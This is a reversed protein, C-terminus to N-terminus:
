LSSLSASIIMLNYKFVSYQRLVSFTQQQLRKMSNKHEFPNKTQNHNGRAIHTTVMADLHQHRINKVKSVIRNNCATHFICSFCLFCQPISFFCHFNNPKAQRGTVHTPEWVMHSENIKAKYGLNTWWQSDAATPKWSVM